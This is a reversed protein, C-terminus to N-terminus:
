QSKRFISKTKRPTWIFFIDDIYRLWWFPKDTQTELYETEAKDMFICAYTPACKTGIAMGSIQQKIQNNFEFFNNEFCVRGNALDETKQERKELAEKLSRLGVFFYM